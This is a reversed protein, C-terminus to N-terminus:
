GVAVGALYAAATAVGAATEGIVQIAPPHTATM